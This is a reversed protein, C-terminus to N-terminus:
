FFFLSSPSLLFPSPSHFPVPSPRSFYLVLPLSLFLPLRCYSILLPTSPVLRAASPLIELSHDKFPFWCSSFPFSLSLPFLFFSPLRFSFSPIPFPFPLSLLSPLHPVFWSSLRPCFFCPLHPFSM